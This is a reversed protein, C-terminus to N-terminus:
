SKREAQFGLSPQPDPRQLTKAIPVAEHFVPLQRLQRLLIPLLLGFILLNSAQHALYFYVGFTVAALFGALGSGVVITFSLTTLLDFVFTLAFGLLGLLWAPPFRRGFLNRVFGGAAGVLMMSIMQAILLPPAALGYPNFSSYLFEAVAGIVAGSGVGLMMGSLFIIATVLEVNPIQALVLGGAVALATFIAM